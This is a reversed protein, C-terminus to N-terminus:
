PREIKREDIEDFDSDEFDCENGIKSWNNFEPYWEAISWVNGNLVWYYGSERNM